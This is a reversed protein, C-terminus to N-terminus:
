DGENENVVLLQIAVYKGEERSEDLDRIFTGYSVSGINVLSIGFSVVM